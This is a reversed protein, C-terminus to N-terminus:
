CYNYNVSKIETYFYFKDFSPGGVTCKEGENRREKKREKLRESQELKKQEKKGTKRKEAGNIYGGGEVDFSLLCYGVLSHM